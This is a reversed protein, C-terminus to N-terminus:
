IRLVITHLAILAPSLALASSSLFPVSLPAMPRPVDETAVTLLSTSSPASTTVLPLPQERTNGLLLPIDMCPGCHMTASLGIETQSGVASSSWSSTGCRGKRVPELTIHGDAGLCLVMDMAAVPAVLVCCLLVVTMLLRWLQM